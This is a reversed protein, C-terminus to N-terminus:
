ESVTAEHYQNKMTEFNKKIFAPSSIKPKWFNDLCAWNLVERIQDIKYHKLLERLPKVWEAVSQAFLMKDLPRLEQLGKFVYWGLLITDGKGEEEFDNSFFSLADKERETVTVTDTVAIDAISKDSHSAKRSKAIKEAEVLTIEGKELKYYLDENWRKLNGLKGADSKQGKTGEWKQLDRKLQQKIPEFSLDIVMDPTLPKEDSTYSFIHKILRGADADSLKDFYVRQDVYLVFSKKGEAM